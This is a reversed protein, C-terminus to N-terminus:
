LTNLRNYSYLWRVPVQGETASEYDGATCPVLETTNNKVVPVEMWWRGTAVSMIFTINDGQSCFDVIKHEFQSSLKGKKFEQSPDEIINNVVGDAIHWIIQAILRSCVSSLNKESYGFLFVTKLSCSFGIYRAVQCIENATFGNPNNNNDSPFEGWRLSTMDLFIYKSYRLIPECLTMDDRFPGLNLTEFGCDNMAVELEPYFLYKQIGIVSFNKQKKVREILEVPIKEGNSILTSSFSRGLTLKAPSPLAEGCLVVEVKAKSSKKQKQNKLYEDFTVVSLYEAAKKSLYLDKYDSVISKSAM